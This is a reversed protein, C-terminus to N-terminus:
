NVELYENLCSVLDATMGPPGHELWYGETEGACRVLARVGQTLEEPLPIPTPTPAITPTSTPMPTLTPAQTPTLTRSSLRCADDWYTIVTTGEVVRGKFCPDRSLEALIEEDTGTRLIEQNLAPRTVPESTALGGASPAGCYSSTARVLELAREAEQELKWLRPTEAVVTPEVERYAAVYEQAAVLQDEWQPVKYCSDRIEQPSFVKDEMVVEVSAQFADVYGWHVEAERWRALRAAEVEQEELEELSSAVGIMVQVERYADPPLIFGYGFQRPYDAVFAKVDEYRPEHHEVWTTTFVEGELSVVIKPRREPRPTANADRTSIEFNLDYPGDVQSKAELKVNKVTITNVIGEFEKGNKDIYLSLSFSDEEGPETIRDPRLFFYDPDGFRYRTSYRDDITIILGYWRFDNDNITTVGGAQVHVSASMAAPNSEGTEDDSTSLGGIIALVVLVGIIALVALLVKKLM